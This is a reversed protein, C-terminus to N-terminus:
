SACGPGAESTPEEPAAPAGASNPPQLPRAPVAYTKLAPVSVLEQEPYRLATLMGGFVCGTDINITRNVWEAAAVPTHGYVVTSRGKYDAAWNRREPLGFEDKKGTTDGYLAFNRVVGSVRGHMEEKLGGHAVVLKGGALVYHSPLSDLFATAQEVFEPPETALQTVSAELGHTLKVDHGKLKRLLKDDHNGRVCLATGAEIMGMVLRLVGPTNPGRDVLDGVFV